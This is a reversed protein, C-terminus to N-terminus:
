GPQTGSTSSSTPASDVSFNGRDDYTKQVLDAIHGLKSNMYLAKAGGPYEFGNLSETIAALFEARDKMEDDETRKNSKGAMQAFTRTRAAEDRQFQARMAKKTGPSAVTITIAKGKSDYQPVGRADTVHAEASDAIELKTIDFM